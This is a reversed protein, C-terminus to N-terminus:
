PSPTEELLEFTVRVRRGILDPMIASFKSPVTVNASMSIISRWTEDGQGQEWAYMRIALGEPSVEGREIKCTRRIPFVHEGFPDKEVQTEVTRYPPTM